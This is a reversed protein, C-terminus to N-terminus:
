RIHIFGAKHLGLGIPAGPGLCSLHVEDRGRPSLTQIHHGRQDRRTFQERGLEPLCRGCSKKAAEETEEQFADASGQRHNQVISGDVFRLFDLGQQGQQFLLAERKVEQWGVTRFQVADLLEPVFHLVLPHGEFCPVRGPKLSVDVFNQVTEARMISHSKALRKREDLGRLALYSNAVQAVLGISAARRAADTALYTELAADELSRVRGWFDIEWSALGLGVQYQSAVLPRGTLSLRAPTRSRDERALAGISPFLDARQIGYAARAQEVRLVASQLDRNNDLALGILSRLQPDTFYDRWGIAAASAGDQHTVSAYVPPVPLASVEYPPAMSACGAMLLAVAALRLSSSGANLIRSAEM